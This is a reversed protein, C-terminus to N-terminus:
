AADRAEDRALLVYMADKSGAGRLKAVFQADRLARSVRALAKLHDAGADPPSFLAVVLDVPMEDVADVDIPKALTAVVGCIADIGALRAHPISVGGGFGTSGLKEREALGDAAAKADLGYATAALQGLQQFLAKKSVAALGEAVGEPRILDSLDNM